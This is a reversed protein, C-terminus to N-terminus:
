TKKEKKVLYDELKVDKWSVREFESARDLPKTADIGMKATVGNKSTRDLPHGFAGPIIFIDKDAQVRTAIAWLVDKPDFIDVDDDVVIVHKINIHSTLAALIVNRQLGEIKKKVSIIAHFGASYPPIHVAKVNPDVQKVLKYLVPERSVVNGLILHEMSAGVITRYIPSKRMTIASVEVVPHGHGVGYYGTFEAFPGEDERVKPLIKGEIVIEAHAPVMIDVTECRVMEIPKGRLAGALEIEDYPIKAAAALEIAPDVGIVIAVELPENRSEAKEYWIGIDRWPDIHFGIKRPGKVEMRHYSLNQRGNDPDRSFAIGATIFHGSDKLAHVPIPLLKLLDIKEPDLIKVEKVPASSVITPKIPNDMADTIKQLIDEKREVNLAIRIHEMTSLLNTVVPIDYGKVNKFLVTKGYETEIKRAVSSLELNIDVDKEIEIILNNARINELYSRLDYNKDM